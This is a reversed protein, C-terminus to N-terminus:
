SSPPDLELLLREPDVPKVLHHNFGAERARRVDEERGYGTIAILRVDATAPNGRLATAVAFGDMGPLGIDCLVVDPPTQRAADVGDPGTYAMAVDHGFLELLMRLSDASDRNDEVVLVRLRKRSPGPAIPRESLAAPENERPLWVTFEAGKGLGASAAEIRGRHLEALGKVISLGLGLGGRSRDLSRDAQAFAEFLRPLMEPEIGMGTDRVTFAAERETSDVKVTIAGGKQTFKTANGLLNDVIQTLRTSDAMVWVPTDPLELHLTMDRAELDNKHDMVSTRVLQALDLHRQRLAIKGRTIRSVDLLDDVLRSMNAVQRDMMERVQDVTNWDNGRLRLIHLGTRIPNLPNRLEHALM